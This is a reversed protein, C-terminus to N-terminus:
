FRRLSRGDPGAVAGAWLIAGPLTQALATRWSWTLCSTWNTCSPAGRRSGTITQPSKLAPGSESSILISVPRAAM